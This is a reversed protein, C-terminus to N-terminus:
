SLVVGEHGINRGNTGLVTLRKDSFREDTTTRIVTARRGELITGRLVCAILHGSTSRCSYEDWGEQLGSMRALIGSVVM